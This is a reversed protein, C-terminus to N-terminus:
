GLDHVTAVSPSRYNYPIVHAPTFFVDPPNRRLENALRLHTWLIPFPINVSELHDAEPLFGDAPPSNFYLRISHGREAALPILVKTLQLTYGETGTPQSSVARSVDIGIVM